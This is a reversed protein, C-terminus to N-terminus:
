FATRTEVDQQSVPWKMSCYGTEEKFIRWPGFKWSPVDALQYKLSCPGIIKGILRAESNNDCQLITRWDNVGRHGGSDSWPDYVSGAYLVAIVRGTESQVFCGTALPRSVTM